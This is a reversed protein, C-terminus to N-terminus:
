RILEPMYREYDQEQRVIWWPKQPSSSPVGEKASERALFKRASKYLDEFVIQKKLSVVTKDETEGLHIFLDDEEEHGSIKELAKGAYSICSIFIKKKLLNEREEDSRDIKDFYSTIMNAVVVGEDKPGVDLLLEKDINLITLHDYL